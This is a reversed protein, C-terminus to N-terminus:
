PEIHYPLGRPDALNPKSNRQSNASNRREAM